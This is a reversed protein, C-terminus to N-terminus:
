RRDPRGAGSDEPQHRRPHRTSWEGRGPERERLPPGDRPQPRDLSREPDPLGLGARVDTGGEVGRLHTLDFIQLDCPSLDCVVFTHDNYIEIEQWILTPDAKGALSGLYVPKKPNSVDVFLLGKTSGLLAYEKKTEPDVWGWVDAIRAGGLDAAPLYSQLDIGKCPYGAAKGNKCAAAGVAAADATSSSLPLMAAIVVLGLLMTPLIRIRRTTEMSSPKAIRRGIGEGILSGHLAPDTRDLRDDLLAPGRPLRKPDPHTGALGDFRGSPGDERRHLLRGEMRGVSAPPLLFRRDDVPARGRPTEADESSRAHPGRDPRDGRAMDQARRSPGPVYRTRRQPVRGRGFGARGCPRPERHDHRSGHPDRGPLAPHAIRRGHSCRGRARLRAASSGCRVGKGKAVVGDNQTRSPGRLALRAEYLARGYIGTVVPTANSTGSFEGEGGVTPSGYASPYSLGVGSIDAPKGHGSYSAKNVPDVAGVTVIWDPGPQSSLLTNNPVFFSRDHGNHAAFFVTQGRETAKRQAETDSGTYVNDTLVTSHGYSNSIADIWPQSEAWELAQETAPLSFGGTDIFVLLCEPCSGHLNGVAVSSAGTGHSSTEGYGGDTGFDVLGVVKTGPITYFNVDKPTSQKVKAWEEQDATHLQMYDANENKEELTLDLQEYSAFETPKPFGRLWEHPPRELPLRPSRPMKSALFDWHYPTIGSDIVAIVTVDGVATPPVAETNPRPGRTSVPATTLVPLLFLACLGALSKRM